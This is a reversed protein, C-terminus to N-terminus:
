KGRKTKGAARDVERQAAEADAQQKKEELAKKANKNFIAIEEPFAYNHVTTWISNVRAVIRKYKIKRVEYEYHLAPDAPRKGVKERYIAVDDPQFACLIVGIIRAKNELFVVLTGFTMKLKQGLIKRWHHEGIKKRALTVIDDVVERPIPIKGEPNVADYDIDVESETLAPQVDITRYDLLGAM